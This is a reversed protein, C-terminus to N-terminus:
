FPIDDDGEQHRRAERLVRAREALRELEARRIPELGARTLEQRTRAERDLRAQIWAPRERSPMM